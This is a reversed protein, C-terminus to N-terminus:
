CRSPTRRPPIGPDAAAPMRVLAAKVQDVGTGGDIGLASSAAGIGAFHLRTRDRDGVPLGTGQVTLVPPATRCAGVVLGQTRVPTAAAVFMDNNKM